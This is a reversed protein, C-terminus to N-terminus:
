SKHIEGSLFRWALAALVGGALPAVIFVWVQALADGGLLLAPGFSRAPNVSTGTFYIGLLHVLTLSGGIVLGAVKGNEPKSTAGLVALVFVFTLIIEIVLSKLVSAEFLGNAGLGKDTGIMALLVAAGAIAGLFQSVVYGIFDKTNMGKNLWVAISVAPNIHCGSIHGISYAMAVIVGGFALATLVYAANAEGSCGTVAAVGCAFLVLVFTGLFESLYKKLTVM